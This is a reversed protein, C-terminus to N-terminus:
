SLTRQVNRQQNRPHHENRDLPEQLEPVRPPVLDPKPSTTRDLATATVKGHHDGDM